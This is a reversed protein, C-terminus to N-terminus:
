GNSLVTKLVGILTDLDANRNNLSSRRTNLISIVSDIQTQEKNVAKNQTNSIFRRLSGEGRGCVVAFFV